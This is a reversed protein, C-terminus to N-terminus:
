KNKNGFNDFSMILGRSPSRFWCNEVGQKIDNWSIKREDFVNYKDLSHYTAGDRKNCSQALDSFALYHDKLWIM